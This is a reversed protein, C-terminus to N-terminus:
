IVACAANHLKGVKLEPLPGILTQVTALAQEASEPPHVAVDVFVKTSLVNVVAGPEVIRCAWPLTELGVLVVNALNGGLAHHVAMDFGGQAPLRVLLRQKDGSTLVPAMDRLYGEDATAPLAFIIIDSKNPTPPHVNLLPANHAVCSSTNNNM